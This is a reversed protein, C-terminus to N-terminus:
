YGGSCTRVRHVRTIVLSLMRGESIHTEPIQFKFGVGNRRPLVVATSFDVRFDVGGPPEATVATIQFTGVTTTITNIWLTIIHRVAVFILLWEESIVENRLSSRMLADAESGGASKLM